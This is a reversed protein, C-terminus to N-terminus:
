LRSQSIFNNFYVSAGIISTLTRGLTSRVDGGEIYTLAYSRTDKRGGDKGGNEAKKWGRWERAVKIRFENVFMIQNM